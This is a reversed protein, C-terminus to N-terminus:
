AALAAQVPEGLVTSAVTPRDLSDPRMRWTLKYVPAPCDNLRARITEDVAHDLGLRQPLHPPVASVDPVRAWHERFTPDHRDLIEFGYHLWFYPYIRAREAVLPHFWASKGFLAALTRLGHREFRGPLRRETTRWYNQNFRHLADAIYSAPTSALFWSSVIREPDPRRFAFFGARAVEPIWDDLPRRCFTTGDAWVGGHQHLLAVRVVDALAPPAIDKIAPTEFGRWDVYRDVNDATIVVVDWDPNRERWVAICRQILPHAQTEGQWWFTWLTKPISM